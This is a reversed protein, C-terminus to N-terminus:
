HKPTEDLDLDEIMKRLAAAAGAEGRTEILRELFAGGIGAEVVHADIGKDVLMQAQKPFVEICDNENIQAIAQENDTM